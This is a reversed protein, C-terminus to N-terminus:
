RHQVKHNNLCESMTLVPWSPPLNDVQIPFSLYHVSKKQLWTVWQICSYDWLGACMCMVSHSSYRQKLLGSNLGSCSAPEVCFQISLFQPEPWWSVRSKQKGWALSRSYFVWHSWHSRCLCHTATLGARSQGPGSSRLEKAETSTGCYLHFSLIVPFLALSSSRPFCSVLDSRPLLDTALFTRLTKSLSLFPANSCPFM